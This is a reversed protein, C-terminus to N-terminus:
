RCATKNRALVAAGAASCRRERCSARGIECKNVTRSISALITFGVAGPIHRLQQTPITDVRPEHVKCTPLCGLGFTQVIHNALLKSVDVIRVLQRNDSAIGM